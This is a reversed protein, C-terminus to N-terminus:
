FAPADRMIFDCQGERVSLPLDEPEIVSKPVLVLLREVLNLLERM